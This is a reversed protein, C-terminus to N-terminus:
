DNVTKRLMLRTKLKDGYNNNWGETSSAIVTVINSNM